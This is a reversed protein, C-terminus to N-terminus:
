KQRIDSIFLLFNANYVENNNPKKKRWCFFFCFRFFLSFEFIFFSYFLKHKHLFKIKIEASNVINFLRKPSIINWSYNKRERNCEKSDCWSHRLFLSLSSPLYSSFFLFYYYYLLIFLFIFLFLPLNIHRWLTQSFAPLLHRSFFSSEARLSSAIYLDM